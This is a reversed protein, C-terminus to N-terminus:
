PVDPVFLGYPMREQFYRIVRAEGGPVSIALAEGAATRFEVVYTGDDSASKLGILSCDVSGRLRAFSEELAELTTEAVETSRGRQITREILERQKAIYNKCEAINRDIEVLHKREAETVARKGWDEEEERKVAPADLNKM